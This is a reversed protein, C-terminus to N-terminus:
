EVGELQLIEMSECSDKVFRPNTARVIKREEPLFVLYQNFADTYGIFVGEKAKPNLKDKKNPIHIWCKSGWIEMNSLNLRKGTWLEYPTKGTRRVKV